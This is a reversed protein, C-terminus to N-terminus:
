ERMAARPRVSTDRVADALIQAAEVAQIRAIAEQQKELAEEDVDEDDEDVPDLGKARLYRNRQEKLVQERRDSEARRDRERLSVVTQDDLEKLVRGRASLMDFGQDRRVRELSRARLSDVRRLSARDYEAPEIRGWPLANELSREGHDDIDVVVYHFAGFAAPRVKADPFGAWPILLASTSSIYPVGSPTRM